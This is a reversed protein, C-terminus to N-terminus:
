AHDRLEKVGREAACHACCYFAGKAEMGHGIIKCGCHACAPALAQIACEFSDFVHRKGAMVVKFAGAYENGCVGCRGKM